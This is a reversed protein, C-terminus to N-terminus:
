PLTSGKILLGGKLSLGSQETFLDAAAVGDASGRGLARAWRPPGTLVYQFDRQKSRLKKAGKSRQLDVVKKKRKERDLQKKRFNRVSAGLSQPTLSLRLPKKKRGLTVFALRHHDHLDIFKAM